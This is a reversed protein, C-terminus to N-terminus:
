NVTLKLTYLKRSYIKILYTGSPLEQHLLSYRNDNINKSQYITRGAMDVVEIKDIPYPSEIVSKNGNTLPNPYLSVKNEGHEDQHIQLTQSYTEAGQANVMMLRYYNQGTAALTNLYNYHGNSAAYYPQTNITKFTKADTSWQLYYQDQQKEGAVKWQLLHDLGQTVGTFSILDIPLPAGLMEFYVRNSVEDYSDNTFLVIFYNGPTHPIASDSISSNGSPQGDIYTYSIFTDTNPNLGAPYIGLWDKPNGPGDVWTASVYEGLNYVSRDTYLTTITDGVAFYLRDAAEFYQDKLMYTAFYYGKALGTVNYTGNSGSTYSWKLSAPGGPTMGVKFIGIWDKVLGPANTYTIPITDGLNYNTNPTTLEPQPGYYFHIRPAGETYGGDIFYAAYYEDAATLNFTKSVSPSGTYAWVTAVTTGAGVGPTQGKKYIGIWANPHTAGNTLHITVPTGTTFRNTDTAMLPNVYVSNYIKFSDIASWLSWNLNRDRHRVRVYHWGNPLSGLPLLYTTIDVDKNVDATSDPSSGSAMGFLDEYHRYSNKKIISFNRDAAIQFETSNLLENATSTFPTTTITLPLSISDSFNNTVTPQNPAASNLYRHFSDIVVNNRNNYISGISYATVDVKDQIMDIEVLQYAWQSITKQVDDFNEETAMNWYQNWATGGSIINYAAADKMQGRSYIHHHAGFHLVFKPSHM